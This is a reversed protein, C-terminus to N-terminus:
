ATGAPPPVRPRSPQRSATLLWSAAALAPLVVLTLTLPARYAASAIIAAAWLLANGIQLQTTM